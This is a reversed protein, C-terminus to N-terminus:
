ISELTSLIHILKTERMLLFISFNEVSNKFLLDFLDLFYLFFEVSVKLIM